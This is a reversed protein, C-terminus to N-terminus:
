CPRSPEWPCWRVGASLRRLHRPRPLALGPLLPTTIVGDAAIVRVGGPVEITVQRTKPFFRWVELAGCEFYLETKADIQKATNSPSIVEIAIAPAGEHIERDDPGRPDRERGATALKAGLLLYGMEYFVEGFRSPKEAPM